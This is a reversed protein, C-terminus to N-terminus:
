RLVGRPREVKTRKDTSDVRNTREPRAASSTGVSESQAGPRPSSASAGRRDAARGLDAVERPPSLPLAHDTIRGHGRGDQWGAAGRSTADGRDALVREAGWASRPRCGSGAGRCVGCRGGAPRAQRRAAPVADVGKAVGPGVGRGRRGGLDRWQHRGRPRHRRTDHAGPGPAKRPPRISKRKGLPPGLMIYPEASRRATMTKGQLFIQGRM